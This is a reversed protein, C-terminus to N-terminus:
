NLRSLQPLIEKINLNPIIKNKEFYSIKKFIKDILKLYLDIQKKTHTKSLYILSTALINKKLFESTIFFRYMQWNDSLIEYRPMTDMGYIKIKLHNNKAIQRWKKKIYKGNKIISDFFNKRKMLRLTSIAAAPGIRDSWFTSSIFTSKESKMVNDKGVVANIPYGNGLSKGYIVIDPIVNYKKYIGGLRMRFGSTCEDFILIGNVQNLLKRIKKLFNNKPPENREVEMFVIKVNKKIILKKLENFFNYKFTYATNKLVKPVGKYKFLSNKKGLNSALYWDHWGHYGCYAVKDSKSYVRALRLAITNAEGGSRAFKVKGAWKDIKLLERALDVEEQCNLSTMTGKSIIKKVKDDIFKNSYGCINTGIGMTTMDLFKNNELDWVYSDKAKTYYTPWKNPLYLDPRKSYLSNGGAIVKKAEKWLRYGYDNKYNTKKKFYSKIEKLGIKTSKYYYFIKKILKFDEPTDLTVRIESLNEKLIINKINKFNRRMFTTVHEKDLDSKVKKYSIELAKRNFVEFDLGDPYTRNICNSLYDYNKSNFYNLNKEILIPDIFPCDATIRVITKAKYFRSAYYFRSLVNKEDGLFFPIKKNELFKKLKFNSKNNPILVCVGDVIKIKNLKEYIIEIISKGYIKKLVKGRLRSSNYRAQIFIFNKM